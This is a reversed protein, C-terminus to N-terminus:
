RWTLVWRDQTGNQLGTIPPPKRCWGLRTADVGLFPLAPVVPGPGPLLMQRHHPQATRPCSVRDSCPWSSQVGLLRSAPPGTQTQCTVQCPKPCDRMAETKGDKFCALPNSLGTHEAIKTRKPKRHGLQM